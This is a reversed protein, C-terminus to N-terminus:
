WHLLVLIVHYAVYCTEYTPTLIPGFEEACGAKQATLRLFVLNTRSALYTLRLLVLFM